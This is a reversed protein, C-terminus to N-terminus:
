NPLNCVFSFSFMGLIKKYPNSENITVRCAPCFPSKQTWQELCLRCFAHHNSCVAPDKVQFFLFHLSAQFKM